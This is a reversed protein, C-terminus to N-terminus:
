ADEVVRWETEAHWVEHVILVARAGEDPGLIKTNMYEVAKRAAFESGQPVTDGVHGDDAHVQHGYEAVPTGIWERLEALEREAEEACQRWQDREGRTLSNQRHWEDRQALVEALQKHLDLNEQFLRGVQEM